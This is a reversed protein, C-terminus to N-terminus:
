NQVDLATSFSWRRGAGVYRRVPCRHGIASVTRVKFHTAFHSEDLDLEPMMFEDDDRADVDVDFRFDTKQVLAHRLPDSRRDDIALARGRGEGKLSLMTHTTIIDLERTRLVSYLQPWFLAYKEIEPFQLFVNHIGDIIITTFPSGNLEAADLAWDIRSFLSDPKLGGPYLHIVDIIPKSMGNPRIINAYERTRLRILKRLLANYYTEPYLFSVILIKEQRYVFEDNDSGGEFTPAVAIKLALGAKGGSGEGHLFINSGRFIRVYQAGYFIKSNAGPDVHFTISKPIRADIEDPILHVQGPPLRCQM